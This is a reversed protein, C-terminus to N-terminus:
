QQQLAVRLAVLLFVAGVVREGWVAGRRTRGRLRAAVTGALLALATTYILSMVVFILGLILLQVTVPAGAPDIFQPLFSLFFLATKPNLLESVFGQRFAEGARVGPAPVAPRAGEPEGLDNEAVAPPRALLSRAGLYVLYAVGAYKVVAFLTASALLVASLGAVTLAAHCLDAVGIGVGTAIGAKRGTGLSRTTVIMVAPGPIVFLVIVAVLYALLTEISMAALKVSGM